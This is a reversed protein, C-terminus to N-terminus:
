TVTKNIAFECVVSLRREYLNACEDDIWETNAPLRPIDLERCSNVALCVGTILESMTSNDEGLGRSKVFIPWYEFFVGDKIM